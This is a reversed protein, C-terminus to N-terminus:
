NDANLASWAAWLKAVRRSSFPGRGPDGNLHELLFEIWDNDKTGRPNWFWGNAHKELVWTVKSSLPPLCVQTFNKGTIM